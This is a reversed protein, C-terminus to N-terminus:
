TIDGIDICFGAANVPPGGGARGCRTLIGPVVAFEIPTVARAQLEFDASLPCHTGVPILVAHLKGIAAIIDRQIRQTRNVLELYM